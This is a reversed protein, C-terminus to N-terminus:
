VVSKRDKEGDVRAFYGISDALNENKEKNRLEPM